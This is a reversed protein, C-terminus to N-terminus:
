ESAEETTHTTAFSAQDKAEKAKRLAKNKTALEERQEKTLVLEKIRAKKGVRDRVYYLKARRVSGRRVVKVTEIVPSYYPYIREVAVSNAGIKRVTFTSSAGNNHIALVDGEFIQIRKKNGETIWQSVAVTDGVSFIPFDRPTVGFQSITERTFKQAKM